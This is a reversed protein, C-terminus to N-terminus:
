KKVGKRFFIKYLRDFFIPTKWKNLKALQAYILLLVLAALFIMVAFATIMLVNEWTSVSKKQERPESVTVEAEVTQIYQTGDSKSCIVEFRIIGNRNVQISAPIELHEGAGIGGPYQASPSSCITITKGEAVANLVFGNVPMTGANLVTIVFEMNDGPAIIQASQKAYLKISYRTVSELVLTKSTATVPHEEGKADYASGFAEARIEVSEKITFSKVLRKEEGPDLVGLNRSEGLLADKLVVDELTYNGTNKVIYEVEVTEGYAYEKKESRVTVSIAPDFRTFSLRATRTFADAGSASVASCSFVYDKEPVCAVTFTYEAEEGAELSAHTFKSGYNGNVTASFPLEVVLDQLRTEGTNKLILQFQVDEGSRSLHTKAARVTFALDSVQPETEDKLDIQLAAEELLKSFAQGCLTQATVRPVLRVTAQDAGGLNVTFTKKVAKTEGPDLLPITIIDGLLVDSVLINKMPVNSNSVIEVELEITGVGDKALQDRCTYRVSIDPIEQHFVVTHAFATLEIWEGYEELTAQITYTLSEGELGAYSLESGTLLFQGGEPVTSGSIEKEQVEGTSLSETIRFSYFTLAEATENHIAYQMAYQDVGGMYYNRDYLEIGEAPIILEVSVGPIQARATEATFPMCFLVALLLVMAAVICVAKKVRQGM